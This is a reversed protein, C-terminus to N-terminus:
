DAAAKKQDGRYHCFSFTHSLPLLYVSRGVSLCVSENRSNNHTNNQQHRACYPSPTHFWLIFYLSSTLWCGTTSQLTRKLGQRAEEAGPSEPSRQLASDATVLSLM